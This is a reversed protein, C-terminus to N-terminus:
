AYLTVARRGTADQAAREPISPDSARIARYVSAVIRRVSPVSPRSAREGGSESPVRWPVFCSGETGFCSFGTDICSVTRGFCNVTRGFCNVTRGFCNVTRGFCNVAGSFSRVTADFSNVRTCGSGFRERWLMDGSRQFEHRETRSQLVLRECNGSYRLSLLADRKLLDSDRVIRQSHRLSRLREVRLPCTVARELLPVAAVRVAGADVLPLVPSITRSIPRICSRATGIYIGV